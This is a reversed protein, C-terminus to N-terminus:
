DFIKGFLFKLEKLLRIVKVEVSNKLYCMASYYESESM